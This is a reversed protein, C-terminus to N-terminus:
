TYAKTERICLIAGRAVPLMPRTPIYCGNIMSFCGVTSDSAICLELEGKSSNDLDILISRWKKLSLM